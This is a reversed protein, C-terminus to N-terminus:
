TKISRVENQQYWTKSMRDLHIFINYVRDTATKLQIDENAKTSFLMKTPHQMM